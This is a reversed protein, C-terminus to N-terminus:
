DQDVSWQPTNLDNYSYKEAPIILVNTLKHKQILQVFNSSLLISSPAGRSYFIDGGKWSGEQIAIRKQMRELQTSRDHYECFGDKKPGFWVLESAVDDQNAGDWPIDILHYTPLNDPLDGQKLKGVRTIEVPPTFARIGSLNEKIYLELLKGSIMLKFDVGWLFDGWKKPNASSLRIRYPPLWKLMTVPNGCSPCYEPKGRNIPDVKEGYAWKTGFRGGDPELVFFKDM